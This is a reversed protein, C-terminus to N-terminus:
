ENLSGATFFIDQVTIMIGPNKDIGGVIDNIQRITNNVLSKKVVATIIRNFGEQHERWFSSFLPLKYLFVSADKAEIISVSCSEVATFVELIDYFKDEEQIFVHFLSCETQSKMDVKERSHQLFKERIILPDKETLIKETTGPIRLVESITALIRIHNNRESSPGIIFVFLKTKKGDLSEFNTGDPVTLIGVVFDSIEDLICHPIAIGNEFGTTGLDERKKLAKFLIEESVNALAQSKKALQAINKLISLKDEAEAGIQICEERLMKSIDM